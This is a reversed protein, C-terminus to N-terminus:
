REMEQDLEQRIRREEQVDENLKDTREKLIKFQIDQAAYNQNIKEHFASIKLKFSDQKQTKDEEINSNIQM